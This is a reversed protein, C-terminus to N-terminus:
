SAVPQPVVPSRVSAHDHLARYGHFYVFGQTGWTTLALTYFITRSADDFALPLFDYALAIACAALTVAATSVAWGTAGISWLRSAFYALFCATLLNVVLYFTAPAVHLGGGAYPRLLLGGVIALAFVGVEVALSPQFRHTVAMLGLVLIVTIGISRSFADFFYAVDYLPSDPDAGLLSWILFNTGSTAVVMWELGLLYNSYRRILRWGFFYGVFIMWLDALLFLWDRM